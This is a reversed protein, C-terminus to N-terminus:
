NAISKSCVLPVKEGINNNRNVMETSSGDHMNCIVTVSKKGRDKWRCVSIDGSQAFEIEGSQYLLYKKM